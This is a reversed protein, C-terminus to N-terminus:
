EAADTIEGLKEIAAYYAEFLSNLQAISPKSKEKKLNLVTQFAETDVGTVEELVSLVERSAIPAKKGLLVIIGRFLPIYGSFSDAFGATIIKRDGASSIYGQRLGILKVKLERECQHRLDSHKIEIEQFVDEGMLTHHLLKINLFEIAFVDLSNKIYNPTMILPAAIRKKGYKKGLPAMVELFKLDMKHIVVISNVDSTKPDFDVTLASGTIHISHIRGGNHRTLDDMFPAFRASIQRDLTQDIM